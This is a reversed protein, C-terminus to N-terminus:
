RDRLEVGYFEKVDSMEKEVKSAIKSPPLVFRELPTLYHQELSVPKGVEEM